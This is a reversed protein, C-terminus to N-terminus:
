GGVMSENSGPQINAVIQANIENKWDKIDEIEVKLRKSKTSNENLTNSYKSLKDSMGEEISKLNRTETEEFNKIQDKTDRKITEIESKFKSSFQDM